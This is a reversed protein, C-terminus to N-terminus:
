NYCNWGKRRLFGIQDKALWYDGDPFRYKNIVEPKLELGFGPTEPPLYHGQQLKVPNLFHESLCDVYEAYKGETSGTLCIYDIMCLHAGMNALGVGGAHLCFKTGYKKCMLMVVLWENLGALRQIDTQLIDLSHHQLYQKFMIKNSCQEGTAVLIPSVQTSIEAHALIDDPHTPEEIWYPHFQKLESMNFIATRTDWVGNADMSLMKDDGITERILSARRCDEALDQGVKMKFGTFGQELGTTLHQRITEDSYGSWGCTIYCPYGYTSMNHQLLPRQNLPILLDQAVDYDVVDKVYNFDLLDALHYTPMEAVLKWVPKGERKAWLDWILNILGANAQHCLGKDPGNWVLQEDNIISQYIALFNTELKELPLGILHRQQERLVALVGSNGRGLTFVTSVGTLHPDNTIAELYICSYDPDSSRADSGTQDLSTPFRIDTFRLEKIVLIEVDTTM